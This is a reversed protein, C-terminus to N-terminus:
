PTLLSQGDSADITIPQDPAVTFSDDYTVTLELVGDTAPQSSFTYRYTYLSNAAIRAAALRSRRTFSEGDANTLHLALNLEAGEEVDLYLTEGLPLTLTRSGYSVEMSVGTFLTNMNQPMLCRLAFNTMPVTLAVRTQQGAQVTFQRTGYWKAHGLRDGSFVADYGPTYAELSYIGAPLQQKQLTTNAESGSLTLDVDGNGSRLHVTLDESVARTLYLTSPQRRDIDLRVQGFSSPEPGDNCAGWLLIGLGLPLFRRLSKYFLNPMHMTSKLKNEM